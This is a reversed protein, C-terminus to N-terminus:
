GQMGIAPMRSFGISLMLPLLAATPAASAAMVKIAGLKAAALVGVLVSAVVGTDIPTSLSPFRSIAPTNESSASEDM